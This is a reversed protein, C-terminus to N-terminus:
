QEASEIITGAWVGLIDGEIGNRDAASVALIGLTQGFEPVSVIGARQLYAAVLALAKVQSMVLAHQFSGPVCSDSIPREAGHLGMDDSDM